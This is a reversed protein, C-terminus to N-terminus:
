CDADVCFGEKSDTSCTRYPQGTTCAVIGVDRPMTSMLTKRKGLILRVRTKRVDDSDGEITCSTYSTRTMHVRDTEEVSSFVTGELIESIPWHGVKWLKKLQKLKKLKKWKKLTKLKKLKNFKKM